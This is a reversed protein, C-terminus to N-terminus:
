DTVIHSCLAFFLLDATEQSNNEVVFTKKKGYYKVAFKTVKNDNDRSIIKLEQIRVISKM